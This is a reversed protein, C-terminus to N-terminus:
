GREPKADRTMLAAVAERPDASEFLVRYVQEAIPMQVGHRKALECASQTTRVGEAVMPSAALAEEVTMGQAIRRGVEAGDTCHIGVPVGHRKGSDVVKQVAAVHDPHQNNLGLPVGLTNALDNPGIFVVDVGPVSLIDDIQDVAVPDEIMIIVTTLENAIEYYDSGFVLQGRTSGIGRIGDPRYRAARVAAAAQEANKIDPVVIGWFGIDLVRKIWTPDNVPVRAFIPTGSGNAARLCHIATSVDIPNHEFDINIWDLDTQRAMIEVAAPDGTTSWTGISPEGRKLKEKVPNSDM